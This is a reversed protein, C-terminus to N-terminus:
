KYNETGTCSFSVNIVAMNFPTYMVLLVSCVTGSALDDEGGIGFRGNKQKATTSGAHLTCVGPESEPLMHIDTLCEDGRKKALSITRIKKRPKEPAIEAKGKRKNEKGRQATPELIDKVDIVEKLRTTAPAATTPATSTPATSTGEGSKLEGVQAFRDGLKVVAFM